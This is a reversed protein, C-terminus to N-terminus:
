ILFLLFAWVFLSSILFLPSLFLSSLFFVSFPFSFFLYVSGNLWDVFGCIWGVTAVWSCSLGFPEAYFHRCRICAYFYFPLFLPFLSLFLYLHTMIYPHHFQSPRICVGLQCSVFSFSYFYFTFPLRSCTAEACYM